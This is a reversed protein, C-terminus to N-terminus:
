QAPSTRSAHGGLLFVALTYEVLKPVKYGRHTLLRHYCMGIGMNIAMVYLVVAAILAPWTFFFLAVVALVHFLAMFITTIWNLNTENHKRGMRVDMRPDIRADAKFAPAPSVVFPKAPAASTTLEEALSPSVPTM